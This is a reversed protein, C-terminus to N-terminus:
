YNLEKRIKEIRARTRKIKTEDVPIDLHYDKMYLLAALRGSLLLLEKKLDSLNFDTTGVPRPDIVVTKNLNDQVIRREEGDIVINLVEGFVLGKKDRKDSILYLGIVPKKSNEAMFEKLAFNARIGGDYVRTGAITVPTFIFPISMSCRAAFAAEQNDDAKASDFVIRGKNTQTAYIITRYIMQNLQVEELNKPYKLQLQHKMWRTFEDGTYLGQRTILNWMAGLWSADTFDKFNKESLAKHLEEPTFGAGLLVAAIAGASTGAYTDFIFNPALELLAGVFALGKVGGGKIVLAYPYKNAVVLQLRNIADNIEHNLRPRIVDWCDNCIHGTDLSLKIDTRNMKMHFICSKREPDDHSSLKPQFFSLAYRLFYYRCYRVIDHLYMQYKDTTFVAIKSDKETSGFLNKLRPSEVAGDVVLITQTRDGGERIRFDKVWQWVDTSLYKERRYLYFSNELREPPLDFIFQSQVQNLKEVASRIPIYLEPKIALIEIHYPM